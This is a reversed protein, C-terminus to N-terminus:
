GKNQSIEEVPQGYKIFYSDVVREIFEEDFEKQFYEELAHGFEHMLNGIMTEVVNLDNGVAAAITAHVNMLVKKETDPNQACYCAFGDITDDRTIQIKLLPM